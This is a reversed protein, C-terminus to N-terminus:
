IHSLHVSCVHTKIRRDGTCCIAAAWVESEDRLCVCLFLINQIRVSSSNIGAQNIMRKIPKLKILINM